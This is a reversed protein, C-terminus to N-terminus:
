WGMRTQDSPPDPDRFIKIMCYVGVILAVLWVVLLGSM